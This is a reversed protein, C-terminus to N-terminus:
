LVGFHLVTINGCKGIGIDKFYKNLINDRHSKSKMFAEIIKSDEKFDKALNEGARSYNYGVKKFIYWSYRGDTDKHSWYNRNLIDCAKITASKELKLNYKLPKLKYNTREINTLQYLKIYEKNIGICPNNFIFFLILIFIFKM